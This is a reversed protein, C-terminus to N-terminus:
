FNSAAESPQDFAWKFRSKSFKIKFLRWERFTSVFLELFSIGPMPHCYRDLEAPVEKPKDSGDANRRSKRTEHSCPGVLLFVFHAFRSQDQFLFILSHNSCTDLNKRSTRENQDERRSLKELRM